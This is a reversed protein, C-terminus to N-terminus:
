PGLDCFPEFQDPGVGFGREARRRPIAPVAAASGPMTENWENTWGDM